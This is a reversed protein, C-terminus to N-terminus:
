VPPFPGLPHAAPNTQNTRKLEPATCRGNYKQFEDMPALSINLLHYEALFSFAALLDSPNLTVYQDPDAVFGHSYGLEKEVMVMARQYSAAISAKGEPTLAHEGSGLAPPLPRQCKQTM